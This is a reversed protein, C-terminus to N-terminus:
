QPEQTQEYQDLKQQCENLLKGLNEVLENCQAEVEACPVPIAADAQRCLDLQHQCEQLATNLNQQKQSHQEQQAANEKERKDIEKNLDKIRTDKETLQKKLQINEDGTLRARRVIDSDSQPSHCGSLLLICFTFHLIYVTKKIATKSKM